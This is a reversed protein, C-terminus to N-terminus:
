HLQNCHGATYYICYNRSYIGELKLSEAVNVYLLVPCENSFIVVRILKVNCSRMPAIAPAVPLITDGGACVCTLFRRQLFDTVLTLSM